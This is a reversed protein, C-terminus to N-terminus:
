VMSGLGCVGKIAFLFLKIVVPQRTSSLLSVFSVHNVGLHSGDVSHAAFRFFLCVSGHRHNLPISHTSKPGTYRNRSMSFLDPSALLDLEPRCLCPCRFCQRAAPPSCRYFDCVRGRALSFLPPPTVSGQMTSVSVSNSSSSQQIFWTTSLQM